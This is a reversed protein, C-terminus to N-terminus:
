HVSKAIDFIHPRASKEDKPNEGKGCTLSGPLGGNCWSSSARASNLFGWRPLKGHFGLAIATTSSIPKLSGTGTPPTDNVPRERSVPRRITQQFPACPPLSISRRRVQAASM